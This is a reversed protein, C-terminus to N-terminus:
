WGRTTKVAAVRDHGAGAYAPEERGVYQARVEIADRQEIAIGQRFADLVPSTHRLITVTV